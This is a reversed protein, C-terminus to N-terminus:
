FNQTIAAYYNTGDFILTVIDTKGATLTVTPTFGGPWKWAVPFSVNNNGASQVLKILYTGVAANSTTLTTDTFESLNITIVNATSLDINIVESAAITTTTLVYKKAVVDGTFTAGTLNAKSDALGSYQTNIANDGTNTNSLNSATVTGAMTTNGNFLVKFADSKKKDDDTGNGIVFATNEAAYSAASTTVTAGALNYQGIVVSGYDSATTLNGMATSMAGSATTEYGAAFSFLGTAGLISSDTYSTSLDVAESGINGYKDSDADARRYGTKSNETISLLGGSAAPKEWVPIPTADANMTLVQGATGSTTPKIAAIATANTAVNATLTDEVARATSTETTIANAINAVSANLNDEAARFTSIANENADIATRNEVLAGEVTTATILADNDTISVETATQDDTGSPITITNSGSLTLASGEISLSQIENSLSGDVETFSQLASNALDLSINVSADLDVEDITGNDIKATTISSDAISASAPASWKLVGAGDTTLVENANGLGINDQKNAIAATNVDIGSINKATNLAIASNQTNQGDILTSLDTDNKSIATFAVGIDATNAAVDTNASVLADTYGVKATNDTIDSSQDPTIGVKATNKAIDSVQQSSITITTGELVTGATTGFDKNFATNKIVIQPELGTLDQDGPYSVKATNLGIAINQTTQDGQITSIDSANTTIGSIDQDGTNVGTTNSITTAQAATIGEKATNLDVEVQIATATDTILQITENTAPQPMYSLNQESLPTYNSGGEFDIVVKLKKTTGDWVINTFSGIKPLGDGILLNIMGYKDTSTDHTEQYEEAGVVNVITFQISIATNVLIVSQNNPNLIVAQYSIGKTQSFGHITTTLLILVFLLRKM